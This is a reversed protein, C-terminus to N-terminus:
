RVDRLMDWNGELPADGLQYEHQTVIVDPAPTYAPQYFYDPPLRMGSYGRLSVTPVVESWPQSVFTSPWRMHDNDNM